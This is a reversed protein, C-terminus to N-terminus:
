SNTEPGLLFVAFHDDADTWTHRVSLDARRCLADFGDRTYKHSNETHIGEGKEFAFSMEDGLEPCLTVTQATRSVLWMEIRSKEAVFPARHEWQDLDFDAGIERNIRTLLNKNFEATVGAADAYAAELVTVDKVLDVGILLRDEARMRSRLDRLLEAAEDPEFNGINSGLFLFLHPATFTPLAHLADRYEGAVATVDLEPYERLLTAASARLFDGSIDIPTYSLRAQRELAAEILLRTKCSSGSGLETMGIVPAGVARIMEAAHRAFIARETRTPYYEPLDCIREFIASGTEDYFFRCPLTRPSRSLGEVVSYELTQRAHTLPVEICSLTSLM